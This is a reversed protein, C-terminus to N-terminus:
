PGSKVKLALSVVIAMGTCIKLVLATIEMGFKVTQVPSVLLVTGTLELKAFM